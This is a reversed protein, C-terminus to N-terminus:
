NKMNNMLNDNNGNVISNLINRNVVNGYYLNLLYDYPNLNLIQDIDLINNNMNKEYSIFIFRLILNLCIYILIFRSIM